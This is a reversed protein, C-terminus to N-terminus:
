IQFRDSGLLHMSRGGLSLKAAPLKALARVDSLTLGLLLLLELDFSVCIHSCSNM